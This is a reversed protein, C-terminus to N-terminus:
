CLLELYENYREQMRGKIEAGHKLMSAHDNQTLLNSIGLKFSTLSQSRVWWSKINPRNKVWIDLLGLYSLRAVYPMLNIDALTYNSGLIWDRGDSLVGELRNFAKEYAAIAHMVFMSDPGENYTSFFRDKRRPDGINKFRLEREEETLNKMKQRFMASFSIETVGEHLGEDVMKSWLRMQSCKYADDPMLKPEPFITDLYECILTSENIARGDHVLTPVVGKPNLKLYEPSYQESKFLDVERAEWDLGKEALTIRVKQACVSNGFQYLIMFAGWIRLTSNYLISAQFM